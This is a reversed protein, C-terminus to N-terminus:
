LDKKLFSTEALLMGLVIYACGYLFTGFLYGASVPSDHTVASRISFYDFYPIISKFHLLFFQMMSNNATLTMTYAHSLSGIFFLLFIAAFTVPPTVLISLFLALAILVMSELSIFLSATLIMGHIKGSTILIIFLLELGLILNNFVVLSSIAFFKAWLYQGRSLSKALFPYITKRELEQQIATAALALAFVLSFAQLLLLGLDRILRGEAGVTFPNALLGTGAVAVMMILTVIFIKRRFYEKLSLQILTSLIKM